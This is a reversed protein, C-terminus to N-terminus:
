PIGGKSSEPRDAPPRPSCWIMVTCHGMEGCLRFLKRTCGQSYLNIPVSCRRHRTGRNMLHHVAGCVTNTITLLNDVSQDRHILAAQAKDRRANSSRPEVTCNM